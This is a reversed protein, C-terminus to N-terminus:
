WEASMVEVTEGVQKLDFDQCSKPQPSCNVAMWNQHRDIQKGNKQKTEERVWCVQRGVLLMAVEGDGDPMYVNIFFLYNKIEFLISNM